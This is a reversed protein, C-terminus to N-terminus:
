LYEMVEGHERLWRRHARWEPCYQEVAAWFERSHNKHLVHCLEHVVVYDMVEPPCLVLRWSLRIVNQGSCSGWRGKANSLKPGRCSLGMEASRRLLNETLKEQAQEQIWLRIDSLETGTPLWLADGDVEIFETDTFHFVLVTGCFPLREGEVGILPKTREAAAMEQQKRLIWSEKEQIFAEISRVSAKKPARVILQGDRDVILAITKRETRILTYPIM